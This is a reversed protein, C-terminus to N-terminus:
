LGMCRSKTWICAAPGACGCCHRLRCAPYRPAGVALPSGDFGFSAQAPNSWLTDWNVGDASALVDLENARANAAPDDRRNYIRIAAIRYPKLLDVIWWPRM